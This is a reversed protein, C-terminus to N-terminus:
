WKKLYLHSMKGKTLLRCLSTWTLFLVFFLAQWFLLFMSSIHFTCNRVSMRVTLGTKYKIRPLSPTQIYITLYPNASGTWAKSIFMIQFQRTKYGQAFWIIERSSNQSRYDLPVLAKKETTFLHISEYHKATGYLFIVIVSFCAVYSILTLCICPLSSISSLLASLYLQLSNMLLARSSQNLLQWQTFGQRCSISSINNQGTVSAWHDQRKLKPM